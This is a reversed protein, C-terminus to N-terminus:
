RKIFKGSNSEGDPYSVIYTYIGARLQSANYEIVKDNQTTSLTQTSIMRGMMDYVQLQVSSTARTLAMSTRDLVPNPYNTLAPTRDQFATATSLTSKGFSVNSVELEFEQFSSYDGHISFVVSRLNEIAIRNGSADKCDALSIAQSTREEQAPIYFRLRNEWAIDQDTILIVEVPLNSKLDFKIQDFESVDITQDGAKLHRFLNLTQKIRGAIRPNREVQYIDEVAAVDLNEIDWQDIVVENELYDLGWPGDALYLADIAETEDTAISFGIDFLHGTTIEVTEYTAGSLNIVTDFTSESAVETTKLNGKFYMQSSRNKNVIQLQLKGNKYFGSQVFVAPIVDSVAMSKLPKEAIYTDVIHNAIAFVQSFSSGWIQFNNYDGSPYQDINWFSLIENESAGLKVSFSLSYEMNGAERKIKSSILQHGRVMVTRVDELSSSNLRDCIAKSHDYVSNETATALVVAVRDENNYYDVSLVEDANTVGLLDTPTSYRPEETGNKGTAPMYRDLTQSSSASKMFFSSQKEFNGNLDKKKLRKMQRRSILSALDGNSELGGTNGSSVAKDAIDPDSINTTKIAEYPNATIYFIADNFDQDCSAYDRRIDEFALIIRESLPEKLLVNHQQLTSDNEPNFDPNSFVRWLGDTVQGNQYGNALLVWGIGTGAPFRGIHVKNGPRLGGGSFQKSVNPFIITIDERTPAAPTADEYNYTYFGLVNRYGAGEGVFTVWVDADSELLIDTDYGSSIYQPNYDPVPFNEPLALDIFELFAGTVVDDIPELYDPTGDAQFSGLYNYGQGSLSISIIYVFFLLLKRM